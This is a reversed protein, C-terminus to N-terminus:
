RDTVSVVRRLEEGTFSLFKEHRTFETPMQGEFPTPVRVAQTPAVLGRAVCPNPTAGDSLSGGGSESSKTM